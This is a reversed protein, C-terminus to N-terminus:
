APYACTSFHLHPRIANHFYEISAPQVVRSKTSGNVGYFFFSASCFSRSLPVGVCFATWAKAKWLLQKTMVDRSRTTAVKDLNVAM